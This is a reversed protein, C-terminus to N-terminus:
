WTLRRIGASSVGIGGRSSELPASSDLDRALAEVVIAEDSAPENLGLGLPEACSFEVREAGWAEGEAGGGLWVRVGISVASFFFTSRRNKAHSPRTKLRFFDLGVGLLGGAIIAIVKDCFSRVTGTAHGVPIALSQASVELATCIEISVFSSSPSSSFTVAFASTPFIEDTSGV